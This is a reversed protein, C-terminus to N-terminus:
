DPELERIEEFMKLGKENMDLMTYLAELKELTLIHHPQLSYAKELLPLTLRFHQEYALKLEQRIEDPTEEPLFFYYRYM